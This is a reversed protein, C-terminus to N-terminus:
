KLTHSKCYRYERFFFIKLNQSFTLNKDLFKYKRLFTQYFIDSMKAFNNAFIPTKTKAFIKAFFLCSKRSFYVLNERFNNRFDANETKAFIKAFIEFIKRSVFNRSIQRFDAWKRSFRFICKRKLGLFLGRRGFNIGSRYLSYSITHPPQLSRKLFINATLFLAKCNNNM